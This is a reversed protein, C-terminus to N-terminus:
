LETIESSYIISRSLYSSPMVTSDVLLRGSVLIKFLTCM